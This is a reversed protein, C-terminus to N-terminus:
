AMPVEIFLLKSPNHTVLNVHDTDWFGIADRKTLDDNDETKFAGEIIFIYVGNGPLNM